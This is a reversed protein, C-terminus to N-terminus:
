SKYKRERKKFAEEGGELVEFVHERIGKSQLPFEIDSNTFSNELAGNIYDFKENNKNPTQESHQNAVIVNEADAGVVINPNHTVLIIQREKKKEILYKTLDNYIARNDLSDEPQDILVPKKSNNFELLLKLIVFAKKGQSMYQFEDNQYKIRFNYKYWNKSFIDNIFNYLNKNQNFKLFNEQFVQPIALDINQNFYEIFNRNTSNTKHLYSIEKKIDSQYFEIEIKLDNEEILFSTELKNKANKYNEFESVIQNQLDHIKTSLSEKLELYKIFQELNKQEEEKKATISTLEENKAIDEKGKIYVSSSKMKLIDQDLKEMESKLKDHINNTKNEWLKNIRVKLKDYYSMIEESINTNLNEFSLESIINSKSLQEIKSIDNNIHNLKTKSSIISQEIKQFNDWEQSSLQGAKKLENEKGMLSNIQNKIGNLDGEPKKLNDLIETQQWYNRLLDSIVQKNAKISNQYETIKEDLDENRIIKQVLKNFEEIDHSLTVMHEQPIFEITRESDDNGDKWTINIHKDFTNMHDKKFNEANYSQAISNLLTSKGTSRGGIIANLNKNLYIENNNIELKDIILYDSKEDPCEKILEIRHEPEFLIQKLGSFSLDSKIWSYNKGIKDLSHADSGILLPRTYKSNKLWFDRDNFKNKDEDSSHIIFDSKRTIDEYVGEGKKSDQKNRASGHGRSLFDTIYKGDLNLSNDNLISLLTNFTVFAKNIKAKSNLDSASVEKDGLGVELKVLFKKIVSDDLEDSFIIHYDFLDDEQNIDKLRLELNLFTKVGAEQLKSKLTYDENTFNFYNTLGIASIGSDIITKIFEGEKKSGTKDSPFENNLWSYCSHLHLDWKRWQSGRSIDEM